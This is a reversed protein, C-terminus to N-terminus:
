QQSLSGREFHSQWVPSPVKVIEPSRFGKVVMALEPLVSDVDALVVDVFLGVVVVDLPVVFGVVAVAVEVVGEEEGVFVEGGVLLVASFTPSPTPRGRAAARTPTTPTRAYKRRLRCRWRFSPSGLATWNMGGVSGVSYM